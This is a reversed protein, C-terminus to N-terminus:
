CTPWCCHCVSCCIEPGGLALFGVPALLRLLYTLRLPEAVIRLVQGPRTLLTKVVSGFSDGLAGVARRLPSESLGYAAAAHAPIIVFTAIYFWALGALLVLTGAAVPWRTLSTGAPALRRRLWAVAHWRM